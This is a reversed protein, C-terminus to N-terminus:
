GRRRREHELLWRKRELGGGYGTLAGTSGILRHCPVIIALPNAGNALGVARAGNPLGLKAALAGYSMTEGMAIDLLWRWTRREFETGYMTLPIDHRDASRGVFYDELWCETRKIIENSGEEIRHPPFWRRRRAELRRDRGTDAFELAALGADSALAGMRGIPTDIACRYLTQVYDDPRWPVFEDFSLVVM